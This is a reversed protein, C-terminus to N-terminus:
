RYQLLENDKVDKSDATHKREWMCRYMILEFAKVQDKAAGEVVFLFSDEGGGALDRHTIAVAGPESSDTESAPSIKFDM